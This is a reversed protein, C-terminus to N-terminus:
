LAGIKEAERDALIEARLEQRLRDEALQKDTKTSERALQSVIRTRNGKLERKVLWPQVTQAMLIAVLLCVSLAGVFKLVDSWAHLWGVKRPAQRPLSPAETKKTNRTKAAPRQKAM